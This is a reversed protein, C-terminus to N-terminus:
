LEGADKIGEMERYMNEKIEEEQGEEENIVGGNGGRRVRRRGVENVGKMEEDKRREKEEKM